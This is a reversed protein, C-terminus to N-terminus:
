CWTSINNGSVYITNGSTVNKTIFGTCSTGVSPYGTNIAVATPKYGSSNPGSIDSVAFTVNTGSYISMTGVLRGSTTMSTILQVFTTGGDISYWVYRGTGSSIKGYVSISVLSAASIDQYMVCQNGSYPALITTNVYFYAILNDKTMIKNGSYPYSTSTRGIGLSVVQDFTVLYNNSLM